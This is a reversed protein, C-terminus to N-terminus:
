MLLLIPKISYAIVVAIVNNIPEYAQMSESAMMDSYRKDFYILAFTNTAQTNIANDATQKILFSKTIYLIFVLTSDYRYRTLSLKTFGNLPLPIPVNSRSTFSAFASLFSSLENLWYKLVGYSIEHAANIIM